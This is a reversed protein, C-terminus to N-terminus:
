LQLPRQTRGWRYALPVFLFFLQELSAGVHLRMELGRQGVKM